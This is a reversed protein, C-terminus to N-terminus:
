FACWLLSICVIIVVLLILLKKLVQKGSFPTDKPFEQGIFGDYDFDEESGYGSPVDTEWFDPSESWGTESDSGCERCVLVGIEVLEGCHPCNFYDSRARHKQVM